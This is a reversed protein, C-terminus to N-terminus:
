NLKRACYYPGEGSWSGTTDRKEFISIALCIRTREGILIYGSDCTYTAITDLTLNESSYSIRGNMPPELAPCLIAVPLSYPTVEFNRKKNNLRYYIRSVNVLHYTEVGYVQLM